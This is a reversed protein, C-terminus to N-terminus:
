RQLKVIIYPTQKEPDPYLAGNGKEDIAEIYYMLDFEGSVYKALIVASFHHPDGTPKMELTDYNLRQNVPRYRLRVSKLDTPPDQDSWLEASITVPQHAVAAPPPTCNVRLKCYRGDFQPALEEDFRKLLTSDNISTFAVNQGEKQLSTLSQELLPLQDKWHGCLGAKRNGFLLDDSYVDSAAAILREWCQIADTEHRMARALFQPDGTKSWIRYALAASGRAAHFHALSRLMKLDTITSKLEATNLEKPAPNILPADALGMHMLRAITQGPRIKATPTNNILNDAEEDFSAFIAVDSGQNMAYHPLDGLPQMEAWGRTMPFASYPYFAGVIRPLTWSADHLAMEIEFGTEKGFRREFERDWVESPTNPNYGLRGWLQFFHWYREFEYETYKYKSNLLDLPKVHGAQGQMKTCLPENIEFGDGDYLHTSEVFRKVYDPDGWLLVRSTGGNWLRWHMKYRQPYRLLDAYGHRRNDQDQPNIHTPHWPMGMQEMWYKTDVRFPIGTSLIDDIVSDPLGKARADFRINPAEKQMIRAIEAWFPGQESNKLGSEDHMRFQIADIGHVERLFKTLAAKTYPILNDATVGWVLGPTPKKLADEIGPVGNAQVGGRYIHDWIGITLDIGRDHAQQILRNLATLNKHQQEPTIGVMSVNDFGEVNFFYPYPPALFGGNEYGFILVFGNFRDKALMDFYKDWYHADYLRQEFYARQMTYISVAREPCDPSESVDHVERFPDDKADSWGIRDAVDLEAYMLGRPDAGALLLVHKHDAETKRILLSEPKTPVQESALLKSVVSSSAVGAVIVDGDAKEASDAFGVQINKAKLAAVIANMGHKAPPAANPDVVITVAGCCLTPILVITAVIFRFMLTEM